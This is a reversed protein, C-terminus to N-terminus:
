RNLSGYCRRRLPPCLKPRHITHEKIPLYVYNLIIYSKSYFILNLFDQMFLVKAKYNTDMKVYRSLRFEVRNM